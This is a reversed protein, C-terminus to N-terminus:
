AHSAKDDGGDHDLSPAHGFVHRMLVTRVYESLPRDEHAALHMLAFYLSEPVRVPPLQSICKEAM